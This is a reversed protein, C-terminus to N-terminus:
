TDGGLEELEKEKARLLERIQETERRLRAKRETRDWGGPDGDAVNRLRIEPPLPPLQPHQQLQLLQSQRRASPQGIGSLSPDIPM